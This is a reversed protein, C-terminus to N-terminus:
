KKFVKELEMNLQQQLNALVKTAPAAKKAVQHAANSLESRVTRMIPIKQPVAYHDAQSVAILMFELGPTSSWDLERMAAINANLWGIRDFGRQCAQPTTLYEMLRFAENVHKSGRPIAMAWSGVVMMKDGRVNPIWTFGYEDAAEYTRLEGAVWYGQIQMGYKGSAMGGGWWGHQGMFLMTEEYSAKEYFSSVYDLVQQMEPTNIKISRSDEDYIDIDFVRPWIDPFYGGGMADLPNLGLFSLSSDQLTTIKRHISRMEELSKPPDVIGKEAFRTKNYVLVSWPGGELGPIAFQKGEYKFVDLLGPPYDRPEIVDSAELMTNLPVFLDQMALDIAPSVVLVIDPPTGGVVRLLLKEKLYNGQGGVTFDVEINPNEQEFPSVVEKFQAERGWALWFELKVKDQAFVCNMGGLSIILVVLVTVWIISSRQSKM